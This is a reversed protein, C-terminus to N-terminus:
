TGRDEPALSLNLVEKFSGCVHHHTEIVRGQAHNVLVLFWEGHFGAVGAVWSPNM